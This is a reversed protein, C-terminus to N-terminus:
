RPPLPGLSYRSGPSTRMWYRDGDRRLVVGEYYDGREKDREIEEGRAKDKRTRLIDNIQVVSDDVATRLLALTRERDLLEEWLAMRQDPDPEALIQADTYGYETSTQYLLKQRTGNQGPIRNEVAAVSVLRLVRADPSFAFRTTIVLVGNETPLKRYLFPEGPPLELTTFSLEPAFVGRDLRTELAQRTWETLPLTGVAQSIAAVREAATRKRNSRVSAEILAPALGLLGLHLDNHDMVLASSQLRIEVRMKQALPAGVRRFEMAQFSPIVQATAQAAFALLLTTLVYRLM